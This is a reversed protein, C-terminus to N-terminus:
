GLLENSDVGGRLAVQNLRRTGCPPIRTAMPSEITGGPGTPAKKAVQWCRGPALIPASQPEQFKLSGIIM